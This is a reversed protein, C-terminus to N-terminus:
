APSESGRNPVLDHSLRQQHEPDIDVVYSNPSWTSAVTIWARWATGEPDTRGAPFKRAVWVGQERRGAAIALVLSRVLIFYDVWIQKAVSPVVRLWGFHARLRYLGMRTAVTAIVTGVVSCCGAAVWDIRDSQGVFMMYVLALIVLWAASAAALHRATMTLCPNGARVM